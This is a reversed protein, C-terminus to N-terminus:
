PEGGSIVSAIQLGTKPDWSIEICRGDPCAIRITRDFLTESTSSSAVAMCVEREADEVLRRWLPDLPTATKPKSVIRLTM